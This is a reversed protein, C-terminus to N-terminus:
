RLGDGRHREGTAEVDVEHVLREGRGVARLQHELRGLGVLERLLAEIGAFGPEARRGVVGGADRDDHSGVGVPELQELGEGRPVTAVEGVHPHEGFATPLHVVSWMEGAPGHSLYRPWRVLM